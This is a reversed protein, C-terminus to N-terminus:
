AHSKSPIEPSAPFFSHAWGEIRCGKFTGTAEKTDEEGPQTVPLLHGTTDSMHLNGPMRTKRKIIIKKCRVMGRGEEM